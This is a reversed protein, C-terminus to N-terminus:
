YLLSSLSAPMVESGLLAPINPLMSCISFVKAFSILMMSPLTLVSFYYGFTERINSWDPTVLPTLLGNSMWTGSYRPTARKELPSALEQVSPLLVNDYFSVLLFSIFSMSSALEVRPILLPGIENSLFPKDFFLRVLLFFIFSLFFSSLSSNLSYSSRTPTMCRLSRRQISPISM